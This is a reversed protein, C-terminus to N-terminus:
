RVERPLSVQLLFGAGTRARGITLRGGLQEARERLGRLGHGGDQADPRDVPAPGRGDDLVEVQDSTVRVTCLRADSHRIVNTVGERIAWGFLESRAPSIEDVSGPLDARVGAADLASRASALESALTVERYAGVTLRVDALAERALREVETIERAARTPDVDVLRGALEAKIAVVTLSHGLIDHLDRAARAREGAVALLHIEGQAAILEANRESLRLMGVSTFAALVVAFAVGFDRQWSPILLPSLLPTAALVVVAVLAHWRPLLLVAAAAVYVLTALWDAGAGPIALAGLGVM